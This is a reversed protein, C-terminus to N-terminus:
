SARALAARMVELPAPVGTWLEFARAAQHLLMTSGDVVVVHQAERARRVLPTGRAVAMIDVVASPLPVGELPDEGALGMSTANVVVDAALEEGRRPWEVVRGRRGDVTAAAVVDRARGPTRNAVEVEYGLRLLVHLCARAAGGAGLLLVKGPRPIGDMSREFGHADTNHGVLRSGSRVITNVAGIERAEEGLEDVLRM